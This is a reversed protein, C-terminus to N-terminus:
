LNGADIYDRLVALSELASRDRIELFMPARRLQGAQWAWFFSALSLLPGFPNEFPQHNGKATVQHLHYGVTRTGAEAYWRGLTWPTSLTGNNRAHGIDLLLGLADAPAQLRTQLADIWALCEAPLYGFGRQADHAEGRTMHLNEIGVTVGAALLPALNACFAELCRERAPGEPQLLGVPGRPVHVTVQNAQLDLAFRTSAAFADQGTVCGAAADWRLNPLHVSLVRGGASRWDDVALRLADSDVATAGDARLELCPVHAKAAAVTDALTRTMASVGLYALFGRRGEQPWTRPDSAAFPLDRRTWRGDRRTFVCVAPPASKAKDPDLGRVLHVPTGGLEAVADFHKHGAIIVEVGYRRALAALWERDAPPIELPPWHTIVAVPTGATLSLQAEFHEKEATPVTGDATDLCVVAVGDARAVRPEALRSRLELAAAAARLDSNGPTLVRPLPAAAVAALFRAGARLDGAATLDGAYAVLNVAERACASLAWRLAAEQVSGDCDPLHTDAIVALRM